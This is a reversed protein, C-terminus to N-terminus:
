QTFNNVIRMGRPVDRAKCIAQRRAPNTRLM